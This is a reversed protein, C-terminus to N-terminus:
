FSSALFLNQQFIASQTQAAVVDVPALVGQEAQRKNSEYQRQALTVAESQVRLADYAFYLEWYAQIAQTRRSRSVRPDVFSSSTTPASM